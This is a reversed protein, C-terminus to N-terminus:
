VQTGCLPRKPGALLSGQRLMSGTTTQAHSCTTGWVSVCVFVVEAKKSPLLSLTLLEPCLSLSGLRFPLFIAIPCQIPRVKTILIKQYLLRTTLPISVVQRCNNLHSETGCQESKLTDLEIVKLLNVFDWSYDSNRFMKERRQLFGMNRLDDVM